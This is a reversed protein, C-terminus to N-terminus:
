QPKFYNYFSESTLLLFVNFVFLEQIKFSSIASVIIELRKLNKMESIM